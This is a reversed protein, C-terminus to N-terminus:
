NYGRELFRKKSVPVPIVIDIKNEVQINEIAEKVYRSLSDTVGKRNKFKLDFIM